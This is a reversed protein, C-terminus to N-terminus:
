NNAFGHGWPGRARRIYVSPSVGVIVKFARAFSRYSAFGSLHAAQFATTPRERMVELAACVRRLTLWHHFSTGLKKQFLRALHSQSIGIARAAIALTVPDRSQGHVFERVKSLHRHQSLAEEIWALEHFPSAECRQSLIRM